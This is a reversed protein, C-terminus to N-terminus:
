KPKQLGYKKKAVDYTWAMILIYGVIPLIFPNNFVFLSIVASIWVIIFSLVAKTWEGIYAFGLGAILLNLGAAGTPSKWKEKTIEKNPTSQKNLMEGCEQCYKAESQNELGCKSCFVM